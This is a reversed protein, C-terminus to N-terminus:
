VLRLTDDAKLALKECISQLDSFSHLSTQLTIIKIDKRRLSVELLVSNALEIAEAQEELQFVILTVILLIVDM